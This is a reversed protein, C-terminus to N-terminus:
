DLLFPAPKQLLATISVCNVQKLLFFMIGASQGCKWLSVSCRWKVQSSVLGWWRCVSGFTDRSKQLKIKEWHLIAIRHMAFSWRNMEIHIPMYTQHQQLPLSTFNRIAHLAAGVRLTLEFRRQHRGTHSILQHDLTWVFVRRCTCVCAREHTCTCTNYDSCWPFFFVELPWEHLQMFRLVRFCRLEYWTSYLALFCWLFSLKSVTDTLWLDM